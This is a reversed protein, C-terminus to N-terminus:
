TKSTKGHRLKSKQLHLELMGVGEAFSGSSRGCLCRGCNGGISFFIFFFDRAGM